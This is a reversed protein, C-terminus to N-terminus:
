SVSLVAPDSFAAPPEPRAELDLSLNSVEAARFVIFDYPREQPPIFDSPPARNETGMSYVVFAVDMLEGDVEVVRGSAGSSLGITSDTHNINTLIGRYRVGSLSTLSIPSGIYSMAM